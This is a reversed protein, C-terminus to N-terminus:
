APQRILKRFLKQTLKKMVGLHGRAHLEGSLSNFRRLWFESHWAVLASLWVEFSIQDHKRLGIHSFSIYFAEVEDGYDFTCIKLSQKWNMFHMYLIEDTQNYLKGHQWHWRNTIAGLYATAGNDIPNKFNAFRKEWYVNIQGRDSATKVTETMAGEDFGATVELTLLLRYAPHKTFLRKITESNKYLCFHGCIRDKQASVVDYSALLESTIFQRIDGLITDVDCHGWVDYGALYDEFVLGYAPKFDCLKHPQTVKVDFQLKRAALANFEDLTFPVFKVNPPLTNPPAGDTLFLWDISANLKCSQLFAPFWVPLPGFYPNIFLIKHRTM